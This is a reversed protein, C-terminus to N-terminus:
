RGPGRCTVRSTGRRWSQETLVAADSARAPVDDRHGLTQMTKDIAVFAAVIFDDDM